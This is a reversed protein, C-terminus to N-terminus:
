LSLELRSRICTEKLHQMVSIKYPILKLNIKLIGNVSSKSVTSNCTHSASATQNIETIHRDIARLNEKTRVSRPREMGSHHRTNSFPGKIEFNRLRKNIFM